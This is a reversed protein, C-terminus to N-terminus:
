AKGGTHAHSRALAAARDADGAAIAALLPEHAALNRRVAKPDHCRYLRLLQVRGDLRGLHAQLERNGSAAGLALHFAGDAAFVGGLDGADLHAAIARVREHLDRLTVADLGRRACTAAALADLEGRVATIGDAADDDLAAVRARARGGAEVLGEETLRRLAERLPTRSIGLRAALAEEPVPAGLPLEGALILHRLAERAQDALPRADLAAAM